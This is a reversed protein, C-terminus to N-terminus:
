PKKLFTTIGFGKVIQEARAKGKETLTYVRTELGQGAVHKILGEEIMLGITKKFFMNNVHSFKKTTINYTTFYVNFWGHYMYATRLLERAGEVSRKQIILATQVLILERTFKGTGKRNIRGSM